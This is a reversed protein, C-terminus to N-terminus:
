AWGELVQDPPRHGDSWVKINRIVKEGMALRGEITASGMHPLLVVNPMELLKPHVQPEHEFVDLGAGAICGSELAAVLAPEDVIEGRAVNILYAHRQMLGIRESNFLHHTEPTHPCNISIIDVRSLMAELRPWYTAEVAREVPEPLRRRNHYHVAMGFARARQAIAQGIRGMGVIGIRKGHIRHGLMMTPTWGKWEGSRLLIQGEALRRPVALILAMAMDATDDTLVGPTNTVMIGRARAAGLDIHDIGNGFNAILKLNPGANNILEADVDDTLTPVLVDAEAMAEALMARDFPTDDLNLTVDFLEAMRTEVAEPLRRTVIVKPRKNTM